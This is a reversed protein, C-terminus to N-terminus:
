PREGRYQRFARIIPEIFLMYSWLPGAILWVGWEPLFRDVLVAAGILLIVAVLFRGLLALVIM